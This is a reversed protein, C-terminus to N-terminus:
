EMMMKSSIPRVSEMKCGIEYLADSDRLKGWSGFHLDEGPVVLTLNQGRTFVNSSRRLNKESSDSQIFGHARPCLVVSSNVTDLFSNSLMVPGANPTGLILPIGNSRLIETAARFEEDQYDVPRWLAIAKSSSSSSKRQSMRVLSVYKSIYRELAWKLKSDEDQKEVVIEEVEEEDEDVYDEVTLEADPVSMLARSHKYLHPQHHSSSTIFLRSISSSDSGPVVVVDNFMSGGFLLFCFVFAFAVFTGPSQPPSSSVQDDSSYPSEEEEEFPEIERFLEGEDLSSKSLENRLSKVENKLRQNEEELEKVRKELNEVYKKKRDRHLQASRRNRLLRLRKKEESPLDKLNPPLLPDYKQKKNTNTTKSTSRSRHLIFSTIKTSIKLKQTLSNHTLSRSKLASIHAVSMKSVHCGVVKLSKVCMSHNELNEFIFFFTVNLRM